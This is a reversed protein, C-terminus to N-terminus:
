CGALSGVRRRSASIGGVLKEEPCSTCPAAIADHKHRIEGHMHYGYDKKLLMLRRYGQGRLKQLRM